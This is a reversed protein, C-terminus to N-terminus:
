CTHNIKHLFVELSNVKNIKDDSLLKLIYCVHDIRAVTADNSCRGSFKCLQEIASICTLETNNM